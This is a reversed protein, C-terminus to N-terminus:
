PRVLLRCVVDDKASVELHDASVVQLVRCCFSSCVRPIM